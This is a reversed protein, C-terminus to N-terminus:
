WPLNRVMCKPSLTSEKLRSINEITYSFTAEARSEDAIVDVRKNHNM